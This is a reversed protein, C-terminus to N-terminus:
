SNSNPWRLGISGNLENEESVVVEWMDSDCGGDRKWYEEGRKGDVIIEKILRMVETDEKRLVYGLCRLRNQRM